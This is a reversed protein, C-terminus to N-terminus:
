EHVAIEGFRKASIVFQNAPKAPDRCIYDNPAAVMSPRGPFNVTERTKARRAEVLEVLSYSNWDEPILDPREAHEDDGKSDDTPAASSIPEPDDTITGHPKPQKKSKGFPM